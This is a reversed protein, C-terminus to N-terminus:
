ELRECVINVADFSEDLIGVSISTAVLAFVDLSAEFKAKQLIPGFLCALADDEDQISRRVALLVVVM